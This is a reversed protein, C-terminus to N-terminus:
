PKPIIKLDHDIYLLVETPGTLVWRVPRALDSVEAAHGPGFQGASANADAAIAAVIQGRYQSPNVISVGPDGDAEIVARGELPVVKIFERLKALASPADGGSLPAKIVFSVKEPDERDDDDEFKLEDAYNGITLPQIVTTGYAVQIGRRNGTEISNRVTALIEKRRPDRERSDGYVTVRQVVFDAPRRIGVGSNDPLAGDRRQGTVVIEDQALAPQASCVLVITAIWRVM